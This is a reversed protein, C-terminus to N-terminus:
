LMKGVPVIWGRATRGYMVKTTSDDSGVCCSALDPNARLYASAANISCCDTVTTLLANNRTSYIQYTKM